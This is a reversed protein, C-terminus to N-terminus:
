TRYARIRVAPDDRIELVDGPQLESLECVAHEHDPGDITLKCMPHLGCTFEGGEGQLVLRGDEIRVFAGRM